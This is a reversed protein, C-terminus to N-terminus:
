GRVQIRLITSDWDVVVPVVLAIHDCVAVLLSRPGESMVQPTVASCHRSVIKRYRLVRSLVPDLLLKPTRRYYLASEDTNFVNREGYEKLIIQLIPLQSEAAKTDADAVEAHSKHAKLSSRSKFGVLWVNSFNSGYGRDVKFEIGSAM